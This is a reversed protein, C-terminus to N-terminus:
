VCVDVYINDYIINEMININILKDFLVRSDLWILILDWM